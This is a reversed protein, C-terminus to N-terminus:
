SASQDDHSGGNSSATFTAPLASGALKRVLDALVDDIDSYGGARMRRVDFPVRMHKEFIPVMRAVDKSDVCPMGNWLGLDGSTAENGEVRDPWSLGSRMGNHAM